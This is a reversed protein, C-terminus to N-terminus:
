EVTRFERNRENITKANKLRELWHNKEEEPLETTNNTYYDIASELTHPYYWSGIMIRDEPNCNRGTIDDVRTCYSEYSNIIGDIIDDWLDRDISEDVDESFIIHNYFCASAFKEKIQTFRVRIGTAQEIVKLRACLADLVHYWGNGIDFGWCMCTEKPSKHYDEFMGPYTTLMYQTYEKRTMDVLRQEHDTLKYHKLLM